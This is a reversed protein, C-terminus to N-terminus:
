YMPGSCRGCPAVRYEGLDGSRLKVWDIADYVNTFATDLATGIDIDAQIGASKFLRVGGWPLRRRLNAIQSIRGVGDPRLRHARESTKFAPLLLIPIDTFLMLSFSLNQVITTIVQSRDSVLAALKRISDVM